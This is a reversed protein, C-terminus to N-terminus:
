FSYHLHEHIYRLVICVWEVIQETEHSNRESAFLLLNCCGDWTAIRAGSPLGCVGVGVGQGQGQGQGQGVASCESCWTVHTSWAQRGKGKKRHLQWRAGRYWKAGARPRFYFGVPVAVGRGGRALSWLRPGEDPWPRSREPPVRQVRRSQAFRAARVGSKTPQPWSWCRPIHPYTYCQIYVTQLSFDLIFFSIILSIHFRNNLHVTM